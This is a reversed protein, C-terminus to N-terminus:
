IKPEVYVRPYACSKVVINDCKNCKHEFKEPYSLLVKSNETLEYQGGCTCGLIEQWCEYDQYDLAKYIPAIFLKPQGQKM